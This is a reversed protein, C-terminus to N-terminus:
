PHATPKPSHATSPTSKRLANLLAGLTKAVLTAAQEIAGGELYGLRSALSIQYQLERSSGLAVEVFRTYEAKSTRASGEVPNSGTSVAARRMQSVWGYREERPFTQATVYVQLVLADALQFAKLKSHDRM